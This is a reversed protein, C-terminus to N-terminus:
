YVIVRRAGDGRRMAAFADDVQDLGIRETILLDLPLRGDLYETAIMPFDRAPVASGYNSGRIQKGEEVLRYVDFSARQGQPTMGVLTVTGGPRALEIALEVTEVLGICELVHDAGRAQDAEDALLTRHAGAQRALELKEPSTDIATIPSAGAAAAGMVASLGVGGLGIVVVSEGAQVGATNRVAGIGTTVACGILAAIEPPTRPDVKIAASRAVVQDEGFTGIGSYAGIPTGDTRRLRVDEDRLRHGSGHPQSCLWPEERRCAPCSRCPATWALVVLDGRELGYVGEGIAEVHAAGEHGLVVGSPREWEGDVVHLDSHCVGAAAMRVRVENRRPPDLILETVLARRGPGEFIVGHTPIQETM